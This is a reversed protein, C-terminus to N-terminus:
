RCVVFARQRVGRLILRLLGRGILAAGCHGRVQCAFTGHEDRRRRASSGAVRNRRIARRIPCTSRTTLCRESIARRVLWPLTRKGGLLSRIASMGAHGNPALLLSM